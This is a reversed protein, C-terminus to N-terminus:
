ALHTGARALNRPRARRRGIFKCEAWVPWVHDRERQDRHWLVGVGASSHSKGEVGATDGSTSTATGYIANGSSSSSQVTLPAAPTITGIGINQSAGQFIASNGLGGTSNTWLPIYDTTGTGSVDPRIASNSKASTASTHSATSSAENSPVALAFASLPLGGLTAADGAKIAYPVSVFFVRPQEAQGAIQVGLWQAEGSTFMSMPVGDSKTIGLYVSYHGSSELMVNQTESWLPEGGQFNNYLLFTIEVTGALPKGGEGTAVDSFQIVPPVVSSGGTAMNRSPVGSAADPPEQAMGLVSMLLMASLVGVYVKKMFREKITRLNEFEEDEETDVAEVSALLQLTTSPVRNGAIPRRGPKARALREGRGDFQWQLKRDHLARRGNARQIGTNRDRWEADWHWHIDIGGSLTGTGIFIGGHRFTVTGTPTPGSSATVRATFTVSEGSTSPNVSSAVTTTTTPLVTQTLVPSVSSRDTSSGSYSATMSHAGVTLASYALTAIGGSLTGTGIVMGGHKFTVTGTPTPGSSATVRATFTVSEGSISPNISSAVTTTTPNAAEGTGTVNFSVTQNSGGGISVATAGIVGNFNGVAPPTFTVTIQCSGGAPIEATCTGINPTFASNTSKPTVIDASYLLGQNTLTM